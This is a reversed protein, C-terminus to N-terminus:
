DNVYDNPHRHMQVQRWTNGNENIFGKWVNMTRVFDKETKSSKYFNNIVDMMSPPLGDKVRIELMMYAALKFIHYIKNRKAWTMLLKATQEKDAPKMMIPDPEECKVFQSM